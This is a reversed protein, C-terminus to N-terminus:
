IKKKTKCMAYFFFVPNSGRAYNKKSRSYHFIYKGYYPCGINTRSYIKSIYNKASYVNELQM